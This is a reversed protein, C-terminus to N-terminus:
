HIKRDWDDSRGGSYVDFKKRMRTIKWRLYRYKLEALLNLKSLRGGRLYLYGVVLGGLHATHSVGSQQQISWYLAVAGLIMVFYKAPVEFLFMFYFPRNPYYLGYALLLGFIAGSAGITVAEYSRLSAELPLLSVATVTLAAGVGTVAYYRVFFPTGWMRELDVGLMWLSLMNFLIHFLDAHLFMYTVPQWLYGTLVDRPTLGFLQKIEISLWAPVLETLVFAAINAILLLKVAPSVGGPGIVYRYGSSPYRAM